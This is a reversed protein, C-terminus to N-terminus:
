TIKSSYFFIESAILQQESFLANLITYLLILIDIEFCSNMQLWHTTLSDLSFIVSHIVLLAIANLIALSRKLLFAWYSPLTM